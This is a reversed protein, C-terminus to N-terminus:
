CTTHTRQRGGEGVTGTWWKTVCAGAQSWKLRSVCLKRRPSKTSNSACRFDLAISAARPALCISFHVSALRELTCARAAERRTGAHLQLAPSPSALQIAAPAVVPHSATRIHAACQRERSALTTHTRSLGAAAQLARVQAAVTVTTCNRRHRPGAPVAFPHPPQSRADMVAHLASITLPHCSTSLCCALRM